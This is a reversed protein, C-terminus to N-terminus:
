ILFDARKRTYPRSCAMFNVNDAALDQALDPTVFCSLVGLAIGSEYKDASIRKETYKTLAMVEIVNFSAWPSDPGLM